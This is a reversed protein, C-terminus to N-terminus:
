LFIWECKKLVNECKVANIFEQVSVSHTTETKSNSREREREREKTM